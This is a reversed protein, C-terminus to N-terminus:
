SKARRYFFVGGATAGLLLGLPLFCFGVVFGCYGEFCSIDFLEVSLVGLFIGAVAGAVAGLAAGGLPLLWHKM